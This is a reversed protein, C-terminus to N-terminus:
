RLKTTRHFNLCTLLTLNPSLNGLDLHCIESSDKQRRCLWYSTSIFDNENLFTRKSFFEFDWPSLTENAYKPKRLYSM